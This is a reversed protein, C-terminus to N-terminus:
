TPEDFAKKIATRMSYQAARQAGLDNNNLSFSNKIENEVAEVVVKRDHEQCLSIIQKIDSDTLKHYLPFGNYSFGVGEATPRIQKKAIQEVLEGDSTIVCDTKDKM